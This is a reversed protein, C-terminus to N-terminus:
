IFGNQKLGNPVFHCWVAGSVPSFAMGFWVEYCVETAKKGQVLGLDKKKV